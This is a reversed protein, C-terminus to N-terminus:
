ALTEVGPNAYYCVKELEFRLITLNSHFQPTSFTALPAPTYSNHPSIPNKAIKSEQSIKSQITRNNQGDSTARREDQRMKRRACLLYMYLPTPLIVACFLGAVPPPPPPGHYQSRLLVASSALNLSISMHSM